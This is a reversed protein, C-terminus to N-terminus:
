NSYRQELWIRLAEESDFQRQVSSAPDYVYWATSQKTEKVWIRLQNGETLSQILWQGAARLWTNSIKRIRQVPTPQWLRELQQRQVELEQLNSSYTNM